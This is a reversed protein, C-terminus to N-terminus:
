PRIVQKGQKEKGHNGYKRIYEIQEDPTRGVVLQLLRQDPAKATKM